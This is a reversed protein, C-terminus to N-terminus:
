PSRERWATLQDVVDSFRDSIAGHEEILGVPFHNCGYGHEKRRLGRSDTMWGVIGLKTPDALQLGHFLGLELATADDPQAGDLLAVMAQCGCLAAYDQDFVEEPSLLPPEVRARERPVYVEMGRDRLLAAHEDVFARAYPTYQPAAIYV